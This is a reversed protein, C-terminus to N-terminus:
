VASSKQPNGAIEKTLERERKLKIRSCSHFGYQEIFVTDSDEPFEWIKRAECLSRSSLTVCSKCLDKRTFYRCNIKKYQMLHLCQPNHCEYSGLCTSMYRDGSFNSRKSERTNSWPRGDKTPEFRKSRNIPLVYVCKGYIDYSLNNAFM